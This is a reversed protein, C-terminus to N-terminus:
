AKIFNKSDIAKKFCHFLYVIEKKNIGPYFPLSLIRKSVFETIKLDKQKKQFKYATQKHIPIKYHIQTFIKYKLLYKQIQDRNEILVPYLHYVNESKKTNQIHTINLKDCYRDYIKSLKIREKTNNKLSKLKCLLFSAQIEDLRSNFGIIKHDFSKFNNSGYNALLTCKHFILKSNTVIAGGDGLAGLNKSPYFSLTAVDGFTGVYKGKFKALIAQAVDEIIYLNFEKAIQSIKEMDSPCGYLHTVLIAKTKKTIKDKILDANMQFTKADIDVFIPKAGSLSIAYASSIWTNSTTIVEHESNIGLAKIAIILADTGSNCSLSYKCDLLSNLKKEFKFVNKGKIFNSNEINSKLSNLLKSIIKINQIKINNFEIKIKDSRM